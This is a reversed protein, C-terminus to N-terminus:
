HVPDFEAEVAYGIMEGTDGRDLVAVDVYMGGCDTIDDGGESLQYIELKLRAQNYTQPTITTEIITSASTLTFLDDVEGLDAHIASLRLTITATGQFEDSPAFGIQLPSTENLVLNRPVALVVQRQVKGDDASATDAEASIALLLEASEEGQQTLEYMYDSRMTIYGTTVLRRKAKDFRRSSMDLDAMIDDGDAAGAENLYTIIELAGRVTQLKQLDMPLETM